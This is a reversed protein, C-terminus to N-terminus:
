PLLAVYIQYQHILHPYNNCIQQILYLHLLYYVISSFSLGSVKIIIILEHMTQHQVSQSIGSLQGDQFLVISKVCVVCTDLARPIWVFLCWWHAYVTDFCHHRYWNLVMMGKNMTALFCCDVRSDTSFILDLPNMGIVFWSSYWDYEDGSRQHVDVMPFWRM